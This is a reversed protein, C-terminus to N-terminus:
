VVDYERAADGAHRRGHLLADADNSFNVGDPKPPCRQHIAAIANDDTHAGTGRNNMENIVTGFMYATGTDAATGDFAKSRQYAAQIIRQL